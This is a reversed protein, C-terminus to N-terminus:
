APGCLPYPPEQLQTPLEPFKGESLPLRTIILRWRRPALSLLLSVCRKDWCGTDGDDDDDDMM